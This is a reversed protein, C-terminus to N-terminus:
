VRPCFSFDVPFFSVGECACNMLPRDGCGDRDNPHPRDVKSWKGVHWKSCPRLYCRRAPAPKRTLDCDNESGTSCHVVRWVAGLGCTTSCESWNGAEWSANLAAIVAAPPAVSPAAMKEEPEQFQVEPGAGGKSRATPVRPPPSESRDRSFERDEPSPLPETELDAEITNSQEQHSPLLASPSSTPIRRDLSNSETPIQPTLTVPHHLRQTKRSSGPLQYASTSPSAGSSLEVTLWPAEKLRGRGSISSTDADPVSAAWSAEASASLHHALRYPTGTTRATTRAFTNVLNEKATYAADMNGEGKVTARDGNSQKRSTEEVMEWLDHDGSDSLEPIKPDQMRGGPTETNSPTGFENRRDGDEASSMTPALVDLYPSSISSDPRSTSAELSTNTSPPEQTAGGFVHHNSGSPPPKVTSTSTHDESLSPQVSASSSTVVRTVFSDQLTGTTSSDQVNDHEKEYEQGVTPSTSGQDALKVKLDTTPPLGPLTEQPDAEMKHSIKVGFNPELDERKSDKEEVLEYALDEHFNIFNYDYYFDDVFVNGKKHNNPPLVEETIVNESKPASPGFKPVHYNPIFDIENFHISSGSGSWDPVSNEMRNWCPSAWCDVESAPREAPDCKARPDTPCFIPRRQTGKGCTVSC